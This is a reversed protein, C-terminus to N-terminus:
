QVIRYKQKFSDWDFLFSQMIDDLRKLFIPNPANMGKFYDQQYPNLDYKFFVAKSMSYLVNKSPHNVRKMYSQTTSIARKVTEKDTGYVNALKSLIKDHLRVDQYDHFHNPLFALNGALVILLFQDSQAPDICPNAKFEPDNNIINAVDEFGEDVLNLVANIFINAVKNEDLKKKLLLAIM